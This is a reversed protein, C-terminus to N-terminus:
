QAALPRCRLRAVHAAAGCMVSMHPPVYRSKAGLHRCLSPSEPRNLRSVARMGKGRAGM